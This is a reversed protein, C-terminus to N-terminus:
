LFTSKDTISSVFVHLLGCHQSDRAQRQVMQQLSASLEAAAAAHM